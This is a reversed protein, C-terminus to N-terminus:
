TYEPLEVERIDSVLTAALQRLAAIYNVVSEQAGQLQKRFNHHEVVVNIATM